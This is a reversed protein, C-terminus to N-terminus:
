LSFWGPVRLQLEMILCSTLLIGAFNVVSELFGTGAPDPQELDLVDMLRKTGESEENIHVTSSQSKNLSM